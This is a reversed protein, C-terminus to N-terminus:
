PLNFRARNISYNDAIEADTLARNYLRINYVDQPRDSAAGINYSGTTAFEYGFIWNAGALEYIKVGNVYIAFVNDPSSSDQSISYINGIECPADYDQVVVSQWNVGRFVRLPTNSNWSYAGTSSSTGTSLLWFISQSVQNPNLMRYTHFVSYVPKSTNYTITSSNAAEVFTMKNDLVQASSPLSITKGGVLDVWTTANADHVGGGANWEGDWMAVLGDTVYPNVWGGGRREFFQRAGLLM